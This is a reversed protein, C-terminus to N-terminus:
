DIWAWLMTTYIVHANTALYDNGTSEAAHYVGLAYDVLANLLNNAEDKNDLNCVLTYTNSIHQAITADGHAFMAALTDHFNFEDNSNDFKLM